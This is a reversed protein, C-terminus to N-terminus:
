FRYGFMFRFHNERVYIPYKDKGLDTLGFWGELSLIVSKLFPYEVRIGADISWDKFFFSIDSSKWGNIGQPHNKHYSRQEYDFHYNIKTGIGITFNSIPYTGMVGSEINKFTIQDKYKYEPNLIVESPGLSSYGGFENYGIFSYFNIKQFINFDHSLRASPMLSFATRDANIKSGDLNTAEWFLQNYGGGIEIALGKFFSNSEQAYSMNTIFLTGLIFAISLFNSVFKKMKLNTLYM